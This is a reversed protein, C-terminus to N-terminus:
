GHREIAKEIESGKFFEKAQKKKIDEESEQKEQESYSRGQLRQTAWMVEQKKLLKSMEKNAGEIREAAETARKILGVDDYIAKQQETFEENKTTTEKEEKGESTKQTEEDTM